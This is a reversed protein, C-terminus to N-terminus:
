KREKNFDKACRFGLNATTYNAKLSSRFAFRMFAPYNTYDTAGVSGNGCFLNRNIGNDGRSEGSVLANFFDSTWEWILGHMDYLGYFNKYTSGVEPLKKSSPVSYWNLILNVFEKNKYGEKTKSDAQAAIEWEAVTPLRKGKWEAYAKAAFWSVNIVPSNPSLNDGIEFDSKWSSLYNEDAFLNNVASRKWKPVAKIFELFENNTVAYKDLLFSEVKVTQSTTDNIYLPTYNGGEILVMETPVSKKQASVTFVFTLIIILLRLM